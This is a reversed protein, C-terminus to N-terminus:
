KKEVKKETKKESSDAAKSDGAAGEKKSKTAKETKEAKDGAPAAPAPDAAMALTWTTPFLVAAALFVIRTLKMPPEKTLSAAHQPVSGIGVLFDNL